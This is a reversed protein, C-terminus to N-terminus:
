MGQDAGQHTHPTRRADILRHCLWTSRSMYRPPTNSPHLSHVSRCTRVVRVAEGQETEEMALGEVALARAVVAVVTVVMGGVTEEARVAVMAVAVMAEVELETEVEEAAMVSAVTERAEALRGM